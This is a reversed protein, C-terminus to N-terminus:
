PSWRSRCLIACEKGVRREESRVVAQQLQSFQMTIQILPEVVRAIYSVFAYLVGMSTNQTAIGPFHTDFNACTHQCSIVACASQIKDRDGM